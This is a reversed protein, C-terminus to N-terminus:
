KDRLCLVVYICFDSWTGHSGYKDVGGTTLYFAM